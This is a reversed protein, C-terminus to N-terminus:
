PRWGRTRLASKIERVLAPFDTRLRRSTVHLVIWGEGVLLNLRRRDLHFQDPADHWEGDYEVAVRFEPWALDPHLVRGAVPVPFQLEPRPVGNRVLGVRLRSEQPSEARGDALGFAKAAKAAGHRGWRARTLESLEAASVLKAHLLADIITVAPLVDLWLALDWCTRLPNTVPYGRHTGVEGEDLMMRHVVAQKRQNLRTGTPVVLHVRDGPSAAHPVGHLYAASPGAFCAREPLDLALGRCSLEHDHELRSDAFVNYGLSMWNAGRLQDPTLLGDRLADSGRFVQWALPRPRDIRRM